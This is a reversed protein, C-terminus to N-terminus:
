VNNGVKWPIFQELLVIKGSPDVGNQSALIASVLLDRAPLWANAYYDLKDLFESGTLL